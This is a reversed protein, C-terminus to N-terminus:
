GSTALEDGETHSNTVLVNRGDTSDVRNKNRNGQRELMIVGDEKLVVIVKDGAKLKLEETIEQPVQLTLYGHSGKRLKRVMRLIDLM